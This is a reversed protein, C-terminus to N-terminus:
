HGTVPRCRAIGALVSRTWTSSGSPPLPTSPFGIGASNQLLTDAVPEGVEMTSFPIPLGNLTTLHHENVGQTISTVQKGPNFNYASNLTLPWSMLQSDVRIAMTWRTTTQSAVATLQKVTQYEVSYDTTVYFTQDNTFTVNQAVETQVTGHSTNVYGSVLFDRHSTVSVPGYYATGNTQINEYVDPEPYCVTDKMLAGTIQRSGHDLYLVLTATASFYNYANFVSLAM